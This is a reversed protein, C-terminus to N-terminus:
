PTRLTNYAENLRDASTELQQQEEPTRPLILKREVGQQGIICPLGLVVKSGIGYREDATASVTFIKKEDRLIADILQTVVTAVGYSTHGKREYIDFGRKRTYETCDRKIAELTTEDSSFFENLPILGISASSWAIFETNGHEGIVYLYVDQKDVNLQKGLQYKLRATDLVTGSGFILNQPRSTTEIAIRTLGDVPNSVVIVVANPAVRDLEQITSRIIDANRGLLELRDQGKPGPAGVTIVIVTSDRLDEYQDTPLVDMAALLPIADEIDWSEAESKSLTRDYLVVNSCSGLLVLAYALNAGVNGAGIIGIKSPANAM